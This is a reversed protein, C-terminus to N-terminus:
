LAPDFLYAITSLADVLAYRKVRDTVTVTKAREDYELVEESALKPLHRQILGNYVTEYGSGSVQTPATNTEIARVTRALRSVDISTGKPYLALYRVVLLRRENALVHHVTSGRHGLHGHRTM